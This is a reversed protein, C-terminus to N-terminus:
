MLSVLFKDEASSRGNIKLSDGHEKLYDMENSSCAWYEAHNFIEDVLDAPLRKARAISGRLAVIETPSPIYGGYQDRGTILAARSMTTSPLPDWPTRADNRAINVFPRDISVSPYLMYRM